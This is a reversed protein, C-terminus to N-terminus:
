SRVPLLSGRALLSDYVPVITDSDVSANREVLQSQVFRFIRTVQVGEPGGSGTGVKVTYGVEGTYRHLIQTHLVMNDFATASANAALAFRHVCRSDGTRHIHHLLSGLHPMPTHLAAPDYYTMAHCDLVRVVAEPRTQRRITAHLLTQLMRPVPPRLVMGHIQAFQPPDLQRVHGQEAATTAIRAFVDRSLAAVVHLHVDQCLVDDTSPFAEGASEFQSLLGYALPFSRLVM